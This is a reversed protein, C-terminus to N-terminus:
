RHSRLAGLDDRERFVEVVRAPQVDQRVAIHEDSLRVGRRFGIVRRAHLAPLRIERTIEEMDDPTGVAAEASLWQNDGRKVLSGLMAPELRSLFHASRRRRQLAQAFTMCRSFAEWGRERNGDVRFLVANRIM